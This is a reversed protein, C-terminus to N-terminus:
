ILTNIFSQVNFIHIQICVAQLAFHGHLLGDAKILLEKVDVNTM